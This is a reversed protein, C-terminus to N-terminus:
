PRGALWEWAEASGTADVGLRQEHFLRIADLDQRPRPEPPRHCSGCRARVIRPVQAEPSRPAEESAPRVSGGGCGSLAAAVLLPAVVLVAFRPSM